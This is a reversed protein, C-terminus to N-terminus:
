SFHFLPPQNSFSDLSFLFKEQIRKPFQEQPMFPLTGMGMSVKISEDFFEDGLIKVLGFDTIKFANGFRFRPDKQVMVNGPKIDRHIVGLRQYAYEMGTCFQIAFDLSEEITLKGIFQELNGGNIYELFLLPKGEIRRVFNAFVINTHRELETWIEAEAMFRQIVDEDWLYKDQFTKIAFIQDEELNGAIYVIGMGGKKIDNIEYHNQIKYGKDWPIPPNQEFDKEPKSGAASSERIFSSSYHNKEQQQQLVIKRNKLADLDNPCISLAKDYSNVAEVYQGLHGLAHGRLYWAEANTPNIALAKDYSDIAEIYRGLNAFNIGENFYQEARYM